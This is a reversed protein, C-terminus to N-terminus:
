SVMKGKNCLRIRCRKIEVNEGLCPQGGNVPYPDNCIRVRRQIGIGCSATCATFRSWPGWHGDVAALYNFPFFLIPYRM